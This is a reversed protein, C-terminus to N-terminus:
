RSNYCLVSMADGNDGRTYAVSTDPTIDEIKMFTGHVYNKGNVTITFGSGRITLEPLQRNDDPSDQYYVWVIWGIKPITTYGEPDCPNVRHADVDKPDADVPDTGDNGDTGTTVM